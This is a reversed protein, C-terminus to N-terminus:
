GTSARRARRRRPRWIRLLEMAGLSAAPLVVLLLRGVRTSVWFLLFGLGRIHTVVRGVHGNLPIDWKQVSNVADGKTAFRVFSPHVHMGQVRHTILM